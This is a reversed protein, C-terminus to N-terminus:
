MAIMEEGSEHDQLLDMLARMQLFIASDGSVGIHNARRNKELGQNDNKIVSPPKRM